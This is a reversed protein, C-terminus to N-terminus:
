KSARLQTLQLADGTKVKEVSQQDIAIARGNGEFTGCELPVFRRDLCDELEM